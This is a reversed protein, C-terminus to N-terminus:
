CACRSISKGSGDTQRDTQKCFEPITDLRIFLLVDDFKKSWRNPADKLNKLVV